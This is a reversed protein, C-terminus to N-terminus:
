SNSPSHTPPFIGYRFWINITNLLSNCRQFKIVGICTSWWWRWIVISIDMIVLTVASSNNWRAIMRINLGLLRLSVSVFLRKQEDKRIITMMIIVFRIITFTSCQYSSPCEGGVCFHHTLKPSSYIWLSLIVNRHYFYQSLNSGGM